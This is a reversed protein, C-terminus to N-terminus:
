PIEIYETAEGGSNEEQYLLYHIATLGNVLRYGYRTQFLQRCERVANEQFTHLPNQYLLLFDKMDQYIDAINEAISARVADQQSKEHLDIFSYEDDPGLRERLLSFRIEWQEETVYHEVAEEDTVQIEPLLSAKLYIAPLVRHLYNLIQERTYEEAKEIFLTFDNAVALMELVQSSRVLSESVDPRNTM